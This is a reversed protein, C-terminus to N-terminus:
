IISLFELFFDNFLYKPLNHLLGRLLVMIELAENKPFM